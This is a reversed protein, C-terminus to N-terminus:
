KALERFLGDYRDFVQTATEHFGPRVGNEADTAAGNAQRAEDIFKAVEQFDNRPLAKIQEIIEAASM